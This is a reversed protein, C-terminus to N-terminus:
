VDAGTADIWKEGTWWIPKNLSTDFYCRGKDNVSSSVALSNKDNVYQFSKVYDAYSKDYEEETFTEIRVNFNRKATSNFNYIFEGSSRLNISNGYGASIYSGIKDINVNNNIFTYEVEGDELTKIKIYITNNFNENWLTIKMQPIISRFSVYVLESDVNFEKVTPMADDIYFLIAKASETIINMNTKTINGLLPFRSNVTKSTFQNNEITLKTDVAELWEGHIAFPLINNKVEITGVTEIFLYYDNLVEDDITFVNNTISIFGHNRAPFMYSRGVQKANIVNNSLIFKGFSGSQYGFNASGYVNMINNNIIVSECDGEISILRIYIDDPNINYKELYEKELIYTNNQLLKTKSGSKCKFFCNYDTSSLDLVNKITNCEYVVNDFSLYVDYVAVSEIQEEGIYKRTINYIKNNAYYVDSGEAVVFAIYGSSAVNIPEDNYVYNDTISVNHVIRKTYNIYDNNRAFTICSPSLNHVINKTIIVNNLLIDNMAVTRYCTDDVKNNRFIFTDIGTKEVDFNIDDGVHTYVRQGKSITCNEIIVSDLFINNGTEIILWSHFKMFYPATSSELIINDLRINKLNNIVWKGSIILKGGTINIDSNIQIDSNGVYYTNNLLLSYGKNIADVIINANFVKKDSDNPILGLADGTIINRKRLTDEFIINSYNVNLSDTNKIINNHGIINGNSLSGGQFDLVCGEPITIEEGNLDFDYRIEYITNEKNIMDQILLNKPQGDIVNINKRLIVKGLGSFKDPEYNRDKFSLVAGDSTIDEEDPFNTITNGEGILQKLSENLHKYTISGDLIDAENFKKWNIDATWEKYNTIDNNDGIYYETIVQKGINYSIWLGKRRIIAPVKNRTITKSESYEVYIHNYNNLIWQVSKDSITDIIDELRVIPFFPNYENARKEFLQKNEM